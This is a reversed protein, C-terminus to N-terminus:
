QSLCRRASTSPDRPHAYACKHFKFLFCASSTKKNWQNTSGLSFKFFFLKALTQVAGCHNPCTGHKVFHLRDLTMFIAPVMDACQPQLLHLIGSNAFTRVSCVSWMKTTSASIPDNARRRQLQNEVTTALADVQSHQMATAWLHLTGKAGGGAPHPIPVRLRHLFLIRFSQAARSSKLSPLTFM